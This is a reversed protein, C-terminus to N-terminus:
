RPGLYFRQPNGIKRDGVRVQALCTHANASELGLVRLAYPGKPVAAFEFTAVRSGDDRLVDVAFDAIERVNLFATEYSSPSPHPGFFGIPAGADPYVAEGMSYKLPDLTARQGTQSSDPRAWVQSEDQRRQTEIQQKQEALREKQALMCRESPTQAFTGAAFLILVAVLGAVWGISSKGAQRM